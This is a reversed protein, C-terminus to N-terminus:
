IILLLSICLAYSDLYFVYPDLYSNALGMQTVEMLHAQPIDLKLSCNKLDFYLFPSNLQLSYLISVCSFLFINFVGKVLKSITKTFIFLHNSHNYKKIARREERSCYFLWM